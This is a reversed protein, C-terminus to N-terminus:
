RLRVVRVGAHEDISAIYSGLPGRRIRIPQGARPRQRRGDTQVWVGGETLVFAMRGDQGIYSSAITSNIERVAAVDEGGDDDDGFIGLDPLRLGFLSRRARRVQERDVVAIERAATAAELATVERDFCALREASATIARCATIREIVEPREPTIDQALGPASAGVAFVAIPLILKM